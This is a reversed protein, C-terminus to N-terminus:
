VTKFSTSALNNRKANGSINMGKNTAPRSPSNGVGLSPMAPLSSLSPMPPLSETVAPPAVGFAVMIGVVVALIVAGLMIFPGYGQVTLMLRDSSYEYPFMSYHQYVGLTFLLIATMALTYPSLKPLVVFCVIAGLVLVILSPIFLEM